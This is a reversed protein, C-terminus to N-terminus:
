VHARGTEVLRAARDGGDGVGLDKGGLDAEGVALAQEGLRRRRSRQGQQEPQDAVALDLLVGDRDHHQGARAELVRVRRQFVDFRGDLEVSVRACESLDQLQSVTPYDPRDWTGPLLFRPYDRSDSIRAHILILTGAEIALMPGPKSQMAIAISM